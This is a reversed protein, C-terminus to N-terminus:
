IKINNLRPSAALVMNTLNELDISSNRLMNLRANKKTILCSKEIKRSNSLEKIPQDISINNSM